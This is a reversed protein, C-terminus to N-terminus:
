NRQQGQTLGDWLSLSQGKRKKMECEGKTIEILSLAINIYALHVSFPLHYEQESPIIVMVESISISKNRPKMNKSSYQFIQTHELTM